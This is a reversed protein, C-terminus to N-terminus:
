VALEQVQTNSPTNRNSSTMQTTNYAANEPWMWRLSRFYKAHNVWSATYASTNSPDAPLQGPDSGTLSVYINTIPTTVGSFTIGCNGGAGTIHFTKYGNGNTGTGVLTGGGAVAVTESGSSQYGCYLTVSQWSQASGQWLVLCFSASTGDPWGSSNLTTLVGSGFSTEPHGSHAANNFMPTGESVYGGGAADGVNAGQPNFVAGPAGHPNRGWGLAPRLLSTVALALTRTGFERRTLANLRYRWYKKPLATM